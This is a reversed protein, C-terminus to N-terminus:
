FTMTLNQWDDRTVGLTALWKLGLIVDTSGLPLPLFDEVITINQLKLIVGKCVGRGKLKKGSGIVM